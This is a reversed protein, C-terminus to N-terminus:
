PCSEYAYGRGGANLECSIKGIAEVSFASGLFCRQVGFQFNVRRDNDGSEIQALCHATNNGRTSQVQVTAPTLSISPSVPPEPPVGTHPCWIEWMRPHCVVQFRMTLLSLPSVLFPTRSKAFLALMCSTPAFPKTHGTPKNMNNANRDRSGARRRKAGGWAGTPCAHKRRGRKSASNQGPDQTKTVRTRSQRHSNRMALAEVGTVNHGDLSGALSIASEIEADFASFSARNAGFNV